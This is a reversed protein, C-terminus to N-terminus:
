GGVQYSQPGFVEKPRIEPITPQAHHALQSKILALNGDQLLPPVELQNMDGLLDHVDVVLTSTPKLGFLRDRIDLTLEIARQVRARGQVGQCGDHSGLPPASRSECELITGRSPIL